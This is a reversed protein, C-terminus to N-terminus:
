EGSNPFCNGDIVQKMKAEATPKYAEFELYDTARGERLTKGRVMGTFIAAAGASTLTIIEILENLNIEEETSAYISPFDTM